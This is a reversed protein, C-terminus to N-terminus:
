IEKALDFGSGPCSPFCLLGHYPIEMGAPEESGGRNGSSM